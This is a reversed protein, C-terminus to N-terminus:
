GPLQSREFVSFIFCVNKGIIAALESQVNLNM